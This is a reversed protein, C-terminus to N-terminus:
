FTVSVLEYTEASAALAGELLDEIWKQFSNITIGFSDCFPQKWEGSKLM